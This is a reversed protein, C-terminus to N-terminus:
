IRAARLKYRGSSLLSVIKDCRRIHGGMGKIKYKEHIKGLINRIRNNSNRKESLPWENKVYHYYNAAYYAIHDTRWNNAGKTSVPRKGDLRDILRVTGDQFLKLTEHFNECANVQRQTKCLGETTQKLALSLEPGLNQMLTMLTSITENIKELAADSGDPDFFAQASIANEIGLVATTLENDEQEQVEQWTQLDNEKKVLYQLLNAIYLLDSQDLHIKTEAM